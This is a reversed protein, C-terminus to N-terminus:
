DWWLYVQGTVEIAERLAEVSGVGQDVVDPCFEYIDQAFASTDAPSGILDFVITDTNALRIDIGFDEDYGRLKEVLDETDMEYNAADSRALRLIDFQSDGAGVVVEVRGDHREDGFWGNTGVFAVLGPELERRLRSVLPGAEGEPVVVSLCGEDRERGFDYTSYPRVGRGGPGAGLRTLAARPLGGDKGALRTLAARARQRQADNM